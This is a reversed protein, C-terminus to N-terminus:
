RAHKRALRCLVPFLQEGIVKAFEAQKAASLHVGDGVDFRGAMHEKYYHHGNLFYWEGNMYGRLKDM